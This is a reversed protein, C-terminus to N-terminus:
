WTIDCVAAPKVNTRRGTGLGAPIQTVASLAVSGASDTQLLGIVTPPAAPRRIRIHIIIVGHFRNSVIRLFRVSVCFPSRVGDTVFGESEGDNIEPKRLPSTCIPM